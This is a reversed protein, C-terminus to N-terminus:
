PDIATVDGFGSLSNHGWCSCASAQAEETILSSCYSRLAAAVKSPSMPAGQPKAFAQIPDAFWDRPSHQPFMLHSQLNNQQRLHRFHNILPIDHTMVSPSPHKLNVWGQPQLNHTMPCRSIHTRSHYSDHLFNNKGFHQAKPATSLYACDDM